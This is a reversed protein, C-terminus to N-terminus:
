LAHKIFYILTQHYMVAKLSKNENSYSLTTVYSLPPPSQPSLGKATRLTSSPPIKPTIGGRPSWFKNNVMVIYHVHEYVCVTYLIETISIYYYSSSNDSNSFWPSGFGRSFDQSRWQSLTNSCWRCGDAQSILIRTWCNDEVRLPSQPTALAGYYNPACM